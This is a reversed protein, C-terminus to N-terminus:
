WYFVPFPRFLTEGPHLPPVNGPRHICRWYLLRLFIDPGHVPYGSKQPLIRQYRLRLRWYAKALDMSDTIAQRIARDTKETIIGAEILQKAYQIVPDKAEWQKEEEENRYGFRSGPLSGAHHTYRYTMAECLHPAPTKRIGSFIKELGVYMSVPDMGDLVTTDFSYGLSRLALQECCSSENINTAVAYGNNEVLYLLPLDWLSAMNAVEHFCGQNFAGDGFISVVLSNNKKMKEALAAGTALPIGGGVIANSGLNGSEADFLHMSGGRGGCWGMRLGMIEALTKNIATQINEDIADKVPDFGDPAYHLVAKSLFHGHARHTSGVWDQSKLLVALAASIAEQGISTHVPGHVLGKEQLDLLCTEFQRVLHVVFLMKILDAQKITKLDSQDVSVRVSENGLKLKETKSM